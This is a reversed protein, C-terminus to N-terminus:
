IALGKGLLERAVPNSIVQNFLHCGEDLASFPHNEEVFSYHLGSFDFSDLVLAAQELHSKKDDILVIPKKYSPALYSSIVLGKSCNDCFFIGNEYLIPLGDLEFKRLPDKNFSLGVSELQRHTVQALLSPRSTIALIEHHCRRLELIIEAIREEIKTVECVQQFACWFMKAKEFSEDANGGKEILMKALSAEWEDSGLNTMTRILTNDIDFFILSPIKIHLTLESM